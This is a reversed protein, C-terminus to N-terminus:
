SLVESILSIHVMPMRCMGCMISCMIMTSTRM